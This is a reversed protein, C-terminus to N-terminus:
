FTTREPRSEKKKKSHDQAGRSRCTSVCEKGVSSEESRYTGGWTLAGTDYDGANVPGVIQRGFPEILRFTARDATASMQQLDIFLRDGADVDIRYARNDRSPSIRDSVASNLALVPASGLDLLRVAFAGAAAGNGDGTITYDAPLDSSCVDSSLDMM